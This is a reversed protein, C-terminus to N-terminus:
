NEDRDELSLIIKEFSRILLKPNYNLRLFTYNKEGMITLDNNSTRAIKNLAYSLSKKNNDCEIFGESYNNYLYSTDGVFLIPLKAYMYDITKLPSIGYQYLREHPPHLGIAFDSIEYYHKLVSKPKSKLIFFNTLKKKNILEQIINWRDGDGVIIICIKDKLEQPFNTIFKEVNYFSGVSGAYIGVKDFNNYPIDSVKYDINTESNNYVQPIYTYNNSLNNDDLYLHYNPLTSIIHDAKRHLFLEIYRLLIILPNKFSFNHLVVQSLPWIDRIELIFKSKKRKAIYYSVISTFLDPSSTLIFDIDKLKIRNYFFTFFLNKSFSIMKLFKTFLNINKYNKEKVFIFKVGNIKYIKNYDYNNSESLSQYHDQSTIITFCYQDQNSNKALFFHRLSRENIGPVGCFHNIIVVHKM